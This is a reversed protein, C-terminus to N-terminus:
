EDSHDVTDFDGSDIQAIAKNVQEAMQEPTADRNSGPYLKVNDAHLAERDFLRHKAVGLQTTMKGRWRAEAGMRAIQDREDKILAKARATGGARGSKRRGPAAYREDQVGGTAIKAVKIACGM